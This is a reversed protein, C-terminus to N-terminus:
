PSIALVHMKRVSCVSMIFEMIHNTTARANPSYKRARSQVAQKNTAQSSKAPNQASNHQFITSSAYMSSGGTEPEQCPVPNTRMTETPKNERMGESRFGKATKAKAENTPM